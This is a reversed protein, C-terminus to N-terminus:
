SLEGCTNECTYTLLDLWMISKYCKGHLFKIFDFPTKKSFILKTNHTPCNASNVRHTKVHTLWFTFGCLLNLANITYFFIIKKSLRLMTNYLCAKYVDFNTQCLNTWRLWRLIYKKEFTNFIFGVKGRQM